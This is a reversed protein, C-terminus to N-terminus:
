HHLYIRYNNSSEPSSKKSEVAIIMKM